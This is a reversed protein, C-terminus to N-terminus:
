VAVGRPAQRPVRQMVVGDDPRIVPRSKRPRRDM